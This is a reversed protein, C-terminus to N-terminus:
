RFGMARIKFPFQESLLILRNGMGEAVHDGSKKGMLFLLSGNM